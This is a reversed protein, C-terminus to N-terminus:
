ITNEPFFSCLPRFANNPLTSEESYLIEPAFNSVVLMAIVQQRSPINCLMNTIFPFSMFM